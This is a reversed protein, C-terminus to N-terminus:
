KLKLYSSLIHVTVFLFSLYNYPKFQGLLGIAILWVIPTYAPALLGIMSTSWYSDPFYIIMLWSIFYIAVGIVFLNINKIFESSSTNFRMFLPIIFVLIRLINEMWELNIVGISNTMYGVETLKSAFIYNWIFVPILFLFCNNLILKM